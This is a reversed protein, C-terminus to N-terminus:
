LVFNLSVTEVPCKYYLILNFLHFIYRNVQAVLTGATVNEPLQATYVSQRFRPANDNVDTVLVSISASGTLAAAGTQSVESAV